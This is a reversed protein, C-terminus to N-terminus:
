HIITESRRPKYSYFIDRKRKMCLCNEYYLFEKIRLSDFGRFSISYLITKRQRKNVVKKKTPLLKLLDNIFSESACVFSSSLMKSTRQRTLPTMVSGDGDWLGRIFDRLYEKPINPFKLDFTKNPNLGLSELDKRIKPSTIQLKYIYKNFKKHYETTIKGTYGLEEKIDELLQKDVNSIIFANKNKIPLNGDTYILGLIYYKNPCNNGISFYNDNVKYKRKSGKLRNVGLKTVYSWITKPNLKYKNVMEQITLEDYDKKFQELNQINKYKM